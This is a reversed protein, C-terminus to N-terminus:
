QILESLDIKRNERWSKEAAELVALGYLGDKFTAIKAEEIDKVGQVYDAFAAHLGKNNNDPYDADCPITRSSTIQKEKGKKSPDFEVDTVHIEDDQVEANGKKGVVQYPNSLGSGAMSAFITGVASDGDKTEYEIHLSIADIAGTDTFTGQRLTAVVSTPKAGILWNVLDIQHCTTDMIGYSFGPRLYKELFIGRQGGVLVQIPDLSEVANKLTWM